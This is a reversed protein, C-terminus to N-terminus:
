NLAPEDIATPNTGGAPDYSETIASFVNLMQRRMTRERCYGYNSLHPHLHSSPAYKAQDFTLTM